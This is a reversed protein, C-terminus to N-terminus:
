SWTLVFQTLDEQTDFEFVVLQITDFRSVRGNYPILLQNIMDIKEHDFSVEWETSDMQKMFKYYCPHVEVRFVRLDSKWMILEASMIL